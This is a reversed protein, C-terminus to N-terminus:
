PPPESGAAPTALLARSRCTSSPSSDAFEEFGLLRLHRLQLLYRREFCFDSLKAVPFSLLLPIFQLLYPAPCESLHELWRSAAYLGRMPKAWSTELVALLRKELKRRMGPPSRDVAALAAVPVYGGVVFGGPESKLRENEIM